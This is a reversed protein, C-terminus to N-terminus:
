YRPDEFNYSPDPLVEGQSAKALREAADSVVYDVGEGESKKRGRTRGKTETPSPTTLLPNSNILTVSTVPKGVCSFTTDNKKVWLSELEEDIGVCGRAKDEFDVQFMLAFTPVGKKVWSLVAELIFDHYPHSKYFFAQFFPTAIIVGKSGFTLREVKVVAGNGQPNTKSWDSIWPLTGDGNSPLSIKKFAM